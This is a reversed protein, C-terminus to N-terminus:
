VVYNWRKESFVGNLNGKSLLPKNINNLYKKFFYVLINVNTYYYQIKNVTFYYMFMRNNHCVTFLDLFHMSTNFHTKSIVSM